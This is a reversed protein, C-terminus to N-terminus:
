RTLAVGSAEPSIVRRSRLRGASLSMGEVPSELPTVAEIREATGSAPVAWVGVDSPTHRGAVAFRGDPLLDVDETILELSTAQVPQGTGDFPLLFLRMESVFAVATGSVTWARVAFTPPLERTHQPGGDRDQWVLVDAQGRHDLWGLHGATLFPLEAGGLEPDGNLQSLQGTAFGVYYVQPSPWQTEGFLM